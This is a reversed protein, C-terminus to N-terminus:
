VLGSNKLVQERKPAFERADQVRQFLHPAAQIDRPDVYLKNGNGGIYMRGSVQGNESRMGAWLSQALVDGPLQEGPNSRVQEGSQGCCAMISVDGGNRIYVQELIDKYNALEHFQKSRRGLDDPRMVLAKDLHVGCVRNAYSRMYFDADEHGPLMEDFGGLAKFVATPYLTTVIHHSDPSWACPRPKRLREGDIWSTYVYHGTQYARLCEEVFTPALVDDADLFVVFDTDAFKATNRFTAPTNPSLSSLVKCRVTQREASEIARIRIEAHHSAYPIYITAIPPM